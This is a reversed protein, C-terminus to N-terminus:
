VRSLVLGRCGVPERQPSQLSWLKCVTEFIPDFGYQLSDTAPAPAVVMPRYSMDDAPVNRHEPAHVVDINFSVKRHISQIAVQFTLQLVVQLQALFQFRDQFRELVKCRGCLSSHGLRNSYCVKPPTFTLLQDGGYMFFLVGRIPNVLRCPCLPGRLSM